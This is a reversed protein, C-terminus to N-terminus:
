REDAFLRSLRRKMVEMRTRLESEPLDDWVAEMLKWLRPYVIGEIDAALRPPVPGLEVRMRVSSLFRALQGCVEDGHEGAEADLRDVIGQLEEPSWLWGRRIFEELDECVEARM